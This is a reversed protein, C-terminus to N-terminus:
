RFYIMRARALNGIRWTSLVFEGPKGIAIKWLPQVFEGPLERWNIGVTGLYGGGWNGYGRKRVARTRIMKMIRRMSLM